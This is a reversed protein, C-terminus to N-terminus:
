LVILGRRAGLRVAETRSSAGLKSLISTIHFKVTHESIGLQAAITKNPLGQAVLQLVEQERATLSEVATGHESRIPQPRPNLLRAALPPQLVVLGQAVAIIAGALEGSGAEKLLYAWAREGLVQVLHHEGSAPGLLVLGVDPSLELMDQVAGWDGDADLDILVVDISDKPGSVLDRLSVAEASVEIADEGALLARLGARVSPYGAVIALRVAAVGTPASRPM